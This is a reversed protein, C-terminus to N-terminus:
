HRVMPSVRDSLGTEALPKQRLSFADIASVFLPFDHMPPAIAFSAM